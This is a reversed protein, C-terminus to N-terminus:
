SWKMSGSSRSRIAMARCYRFRAVHFAVRHGVVAVLPRPEGVCLERLHEREGLIGIRDLQLHGHWIGVATRRDISQADVRQVSM